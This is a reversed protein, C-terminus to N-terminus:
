AAWRAPSTGLPEAPKAYFSPTDSLQIVPKLHRLRGFPGDSEMTFRALEDPPLEALGAAADITGLGALWHAVQVLSVRVLWSGGQETRRALAVMAGLAGLYGCIYDLAQVPLNKPTERTGGQVSSLGTVNQVISDFGRRSAWPGDYGYACISVCVIGPNLAAVQEPSFGRAALTGPRYGQTFIDADKLLRKMTEVGSPDRLDIWACRKGHGTDMLIETQYPLHPAAIHLVDAGNEALVRGSTPGALVRTLDFARVGSLPRDGKPLPRPPAEGIKVIEMLPQRAIAQGHPHANWEDRSRVLGGVCGGGAIAQEIALGDWRAVAAALAERTGESAGSIRLAGERHHPHNTHLFMIRGDRTPYHGALPDWSVPKKGNQLVYTSSRLSAAAAHRDITVAQAKGGRLRWLDSLALGIAGLSASGARAIRWPTRFVPDEGNTFALSDDARKPRGILNLIDYTLCESM